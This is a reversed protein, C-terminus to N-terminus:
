YLTFRNLEHNRLSMLPFGVKLFRPGYTERLWELLQMRYPWEKHYSKTVGVFAVDADFRAFDPEAVYCEEDFVAAPSWHHNIGKQKWYEDHGGDATFVHTSKWWPHEDIWSQRELGVYLDLSFAITPCPASRMILDGGKDKLGWTRSWFLGDVKPPLLALVQEASHTDEQIQIVEHGMAILTRSIHCETCHRHRFNGIYGFRM